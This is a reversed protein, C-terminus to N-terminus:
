EQEQSGKEQPSVEETSTRTLQSALHKPRRYVLNYPTRPLYHFGKVSTFAPVLAVPEFRSVFKKRKRNGQTLKTKLKEQGKNSENVQKHDQKKIQAIVELKYYKHYITHM